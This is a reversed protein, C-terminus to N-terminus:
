FSFECIFRVKEFFTFLSAVYSKKKKKKFNNEEESYNEKWHNMTNLIQKHQYFFIGQFSQM